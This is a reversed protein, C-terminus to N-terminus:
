SKTNLGTLTIAQVKKKLLQLKWRTQNLLKHLCTRIRTETVFNCVFPNLLGLSIQSCYNDYLNSLIVDILSM